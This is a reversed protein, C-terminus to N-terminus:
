PLSATGLSTLVSIRHNLGRCNPCSTIGILESPTSADSDATRVRWPRVKDVIFPSGDHSSASIRQIVFFDAMNAKRFSALPTM